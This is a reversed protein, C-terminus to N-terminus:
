IGLSKVLERRMMRMKRKNIKGYWPLRKRAFIVPTVLSAVVVGIGIGFGLVALPAGKARAPVGNFFAAIDSLARSVRPPLSGRMLGGNQPGQRRYGAGGYEESERYEKYASGM